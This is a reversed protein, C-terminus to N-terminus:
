GVVVPWLASSPPLFIRSDYVIIGNILSWAKDV